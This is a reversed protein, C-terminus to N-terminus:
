QGGEADADEPLGGMLEIFEPDELLNGPANEKRDEETGANEIIKEADPAAEPATIEENVIAAPIVQAPYANQLAAYAADIDLDVEELNVTLPNSGLGDYKDCAISKRLTKEYFPLQLHITNKTDDYSIEKAVTVRTNNHGAQSSKKFHTTNHLFESHSYTRAFLKAYANIVVRAVEPDENNIYELAQTASQKLDYATCAVSLAALAGFHHTMLDDETDSLPTMRTNAYAAPNKNQNYVHYTSGATFGTLAVGLTRGLLVLQSKPDQGLYVKYLHLALRKVWIDSKKVARAPELLKQSAIMERQRNAHSLTENANEQLARTRGTVGAKEFERILNETEELISKSRSVIDQMAEPNLPPKVKQTGGDIDDKKMPHAPAPKGFQTATKPKPVVPDKYKPTVAHTKGFIKLRGWIRASSEKIMQMAAKPNKALAAVGTVIGAAAMFYGMGKYGSTVWKQDHDLKKFYEDTLALANIIEFLNRMAPASAADFYSIGALLEIKENYDAITGTFLNKVVAIGAISSRTELFLKDVEKVTKEENEYRQQIATEVASAHTKKFTAFDNHEALSQQLLKDISVIPPNEIIYADIYTKLLHRFENEEIIQSTAEIKQAPGAAVLLTSSCFLCLAIFLNLYVKYKM